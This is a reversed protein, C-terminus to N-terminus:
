PGNSHRRFGLVRDELAGRPQLLAFSDIGSWEKIQGPRGFRAHYHTWVQALEGHITVDASDMTEEFIPQSCPGKPTQAVFDRIPTIIVDPKEHGEPQWVTTITAGRWFHSEYAPVLYSEKCVMDAYYRSIETRVAQAASDGSQSALIL